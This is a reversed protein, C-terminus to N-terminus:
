FLIFCLDVSLKMKNNNNFKLYMLIAVVEGRRGLLIIRGEGERGGERICYDWM